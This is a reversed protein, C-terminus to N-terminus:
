EAAAVKLGVYELQYVGDGVGVALAVSTVCERVAERVPVGDPM